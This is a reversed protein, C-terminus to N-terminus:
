EPKRKRYPFIQNLFKKRKNCGCGGGAKSILEETIGFKAFVKELTDGLGESDKHKYNTLKIDEENELYSIVEDIKKKADMNNGGM